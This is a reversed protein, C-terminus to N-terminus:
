SITLLPAVISPHISSIYHTNQFLSAPQTPIHLFTVIKLFFFFFSKNSIYRRIPLDTHVHVYIYVRNCLSELEIITVNYYM